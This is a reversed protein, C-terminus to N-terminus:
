NRNREFHIIFFFQKILVLFVILNSVYFIALSTELDYNLGFDFKRLFESTLCINIIFTYM